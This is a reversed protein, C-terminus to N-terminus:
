GDHQYAKEELEEYLIAPFSEDSKEEAYQPQRKRKAKGPISFAYYFLYGIAVFVGSWLAIALIMGIMVGIVYGITSAYQSQSVATLLMMLFLYCLSLVMLDDRKSM